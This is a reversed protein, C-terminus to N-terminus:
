LYDVVGYVQVDHGRDPLCYPAVHIPTQTTDYVAFLRRQPAGDCCSTLELSNACVCVYM